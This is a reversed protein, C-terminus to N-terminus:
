CISPWVHEYYNEKYFLEPQDTTWDSLQRPINRRDKTKRVAKM